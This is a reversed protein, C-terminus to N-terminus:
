DDCNVDLAKLGADGTNPPSIVLNGAPPPPPSYVPQTAPATTSPATTTTCTVSVGTTNSASGATARLTVSTAPINAPATYTATVAGGTTSASAPSLTGVSAALAVATGDSVTQGNAGMVKITVQSTGGCTVSPSATAITLSTPVNTYTQQNYCNTNTNYQAGYNYPYQYAGYNYPYAGTNYGTGCNYPYANLYPNYGGYGGYGGYTGCVFSGTMGGLNFAITGTTNCTFYAVLTGATTCNITGAAVTIAVNGITAQTFQAPGTQTLSQGVVCTGTVSGTMGGSGTVTLGGTTAAGCTLAPTLTVGALAFTATGAVACTYSAVINGAAPCNVQSASVFAGSTPTGGFAGATTPTVTLAQGPTTCTVTVTTAIGVTAPNASFTVTTTGVGTGCNVVITASTGGGQTYLINTTGNTACFLSTTLTKNDITATADDTVTITASLGGAPTLTEGNAPTVTSGTVNFYAVAANSSTLVLNAGEDTYTAVVPVTTGLAFTQATTLGNVTLSTPTASAPLAAGVIFALFAAFAGIVGLKTLSKM